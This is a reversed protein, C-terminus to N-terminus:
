MSSLTPSNEEAREKKPIGIYCRENATCDNDGWEKEYVEGISVQLIKCDEQTGSLFSYKSGVWSERSLVEVLNFSLFYNM